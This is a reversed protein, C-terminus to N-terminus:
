HKGPLRVFKIPQNKLGPYPLDYLLQNFRDFVSRVVADLLGRDNVLLHVNKPQTDLITLKHHLVDLAFAILKGNKSRVILRKFRLDPVGGFPSRCDDVSEM